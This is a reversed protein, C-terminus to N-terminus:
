IEHATYWASAFQDFVQLIKYVLGAVEAPPRDQGLAEYYETIQHWLANEFYQLPAAMIEGWIQQAMGGSCGIVVPFVGLEVATTFEERVGAADSMSGDETLSKGSVVVCSGCKSLLYRRHLAYELVRRAPDLARPFPSVLQLGDKPDVRGLYLQDLHGASVAPGVTLGFGSVLTRPSRARNPFEVYRGLERGIARALESVRIREAIAEENIHVTTDPYSGSVMVTRLRFSQSIKRLLTPIEEFHRILLIQIGYANRLTQTYRIFRQRTSANANEPKRLIATHTPPHNGYQLRSLSLVRLLNPDTFSFGIFLFHKSAYHARLRDLFLGHSRAYMDYDSRTLVIGEQHPAITGHMKYLMPKNFNLPSMFSHNNCIVQLHRGEYAAEIFDDFNTTWLTQIPLKAIIELAAPIERGARDLVHHLHRILTPRNSNQVFYEALLTPDPEDGAEIGLDNAFHAGLEGWDPLGAGRSIGAGIFIAARGDVIAQVYDSLSM